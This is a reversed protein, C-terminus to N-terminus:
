RMWGRGLLAEELARAVPAFEEDSWARPYRLEREPTSRFTAIETLLEQDGTVTAIFQVYARAFWETISREYELEAEDHILANLVQDGRRLRVTQGFRYGAVQQFTLTARIADLVSGIAGDPRTSAWAEGGGLVQHDLMHAVEELATSVTIRHGANFLIAEPRGNFTAYGGATRPGLRDSRVAILDLDGDGHM